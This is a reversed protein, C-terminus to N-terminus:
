HIAQFYKPKKNRNLQEKRIYIAEVSIFKRGRKEKAGGSRRILNMRRRRKGKHVIFDDVIQTAHAL